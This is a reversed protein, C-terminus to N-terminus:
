VAQARGALAPQSLQRALGALIEPAWPASTGRVVDMWVLVTRARAYHPADPQDADAMTVGIEASSRGIRVVTQVVRVTAPYTVSRLFDCSAHALVMGTGPPYPVGAGHMMQVRAEEMLRFYVANNLHGQADMDGWRMPVDFTFFDGPEPRTRAAPPSAIPSAQHRGDAAPAPNM